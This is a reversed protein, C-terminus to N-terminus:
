APRTGTFLGRGMLGEPDHEVQLGAARMAAEYEDRTFLGLEHTETLHKVEGPRVVLYHFDLVSVRGDVRSANTRVAALSEREIVLPRALHYPDFQEPSLWPEVILVGGPALHAAMASLSEGLADPTRVYGISSFLCTVVDFSRGLDFSRMDALHLPVGPLRRRAVELLRPEIDLGEVAYRNALLELHRGTGCAVDLLTRASSHRQRILADLRAVEAPYDKWEYFLDYMEASEAFM